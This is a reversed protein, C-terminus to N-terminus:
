ILMLAQTEIEQVAKLVDDSLGKKALRRTTVMHAHEDSHSLLEVCTHLFPFTHSGDRLSRIHGPDLLEIDVTSFHKSAERLDKGAAELSDIQAVRPISTGDIIIAGEVHYRRKRVSGATAREALAKYAKLTIPRQIELRSIRCDEAGEKPGKFEIFHSSGGGPESITRIRATSIDALERWVLEKPLDIGKESAKLHPKIIFEKVLPTILRRPFYRQEILLFPLDKTVEKAVPHPMFFKAEIETHLALADRIAARDISPGSLTIPLANPALISTDVKM